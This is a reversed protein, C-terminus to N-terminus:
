SWVGPMRRLRVAGRCAGIAVVLSAFSAELADVGGFGRDAQPPGRREKDNGRLKDEHFRPAPIWLRALGCALVGPVREAM